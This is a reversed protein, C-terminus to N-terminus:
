IKPYERFEFGFSQTESSKFSPVRFIIIKIKNNKKKLHPTDMKDPLFFTKESFSIIKKRYSHNPDTFDYWNLDAQLNYMLQIPDTNTM